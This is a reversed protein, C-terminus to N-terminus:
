CEKTTTNETNWNRVNKLQPIRQKETKWNRVNKLQPIRQKGTESM